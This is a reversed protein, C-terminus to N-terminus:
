VLGFVVAFGRLFDLFWVSFRGYFRQFMSYLDSNGYPQRKHLVKEIRSAWHRVLKASNQRGDADPL